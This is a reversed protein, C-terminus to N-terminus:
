KNQIFNFVEACMTVVSDGTVNIHYNYGNQCTIIVYEDGPILRNGNNDRILEPYQFTNIYEEDIINYCCYMHKNAMLIMAMNDCAIIKNLSKM